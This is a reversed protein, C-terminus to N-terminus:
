SDLQLSTLNYSYKFYPCPFQANKNSNNNLQKTMDPEKRDWPSCHVLSWQGESDGLTQEFECGNLQHHWGIMEDETTGKEEQKWDKRADPYKGILWNKMDPPQLIPAEAEADIKGIFIWQFPSIEKLM